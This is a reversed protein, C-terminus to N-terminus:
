CSKGRPEFECASKDIENLAELYWQRYFKPQHGLPVVLHRDYDGVANEKKDDFLVAWNFGWVGCEKNLTALVFGLSKNKTEVQDFSRVIVSDWLNDMGHRKLAFRVHEADGHSWLVKYTFRDLIACVLPRVSPHLLNYRDDIITQDLDFVVVSGYGFGSDRFRNFKYVKDEIRQAVQDVRDDLNLLELEEVALNHSVHQEVDGLYVVLSYAKHNPVWLNVNSLKTGYPSTYMPSVYQVTGVFELRENLQNITRRPVQRSYVLLLQSATDNM